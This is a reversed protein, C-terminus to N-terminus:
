MVLGFLMLLPPACLIPALLPDWREEARYRLFSPIRLRGLLSHLKIRSHGGRHENPLTTHHSSLLRILSCSM